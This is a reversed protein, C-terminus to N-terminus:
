AKKTITVIVKVPICKYYQKWEDADYCDLLPNDNIEPWEDKEPKASDNYVFADKLIFSGRGSYTVYHGYRHTYGFGFKNRNAKICQLVFTGMKM